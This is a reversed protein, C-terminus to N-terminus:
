LKLLSPKLVATVTTRIFRRGGVQKSFAVWRVAYNRFMFYSIKCNKMKITKFFATVAEDIFLGIFGDNGSPHLRCMHFFVMLCSPLSPETYVIKQVSLAHTKDYLHLDSYTFQQWCLNM